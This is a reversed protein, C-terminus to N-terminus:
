KFKIVKNGKENRILIEDEEIDVGMIEYIGKRYIIKSGYDSPVLSVKGCHKRFLKEEEKKREVIVQIGEPSPNFHMKPFYKHFNRYHIATAKRSKILLGYPKPKVTVKGLTQQTFTTLNKREALTLPTNEQINKLHKKWILSSGIYIGLIMLGLHWIKINKFILTALMALTYAIGRIEKFMFIM